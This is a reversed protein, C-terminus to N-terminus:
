FFCVNDFTGIRLVFILFVLSIRFMGLTPKCIELFNCLRIVLVYMGTKTTNSTTTDAHALAGCLEGVESNHELDDLSLQVAQLLPISLHPPVVVNTDKKSFFISDRGM